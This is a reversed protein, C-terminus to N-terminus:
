SASPGLSDGVVLYAPEPGVRVTASLSPAGRDVEGLGCKLAQACSHVQDQFDDCWAQMYALVSNQPNGAEIM